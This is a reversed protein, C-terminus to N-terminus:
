RVCHLYGYNADCWTNGIWAAQSRTALTVSGIAVVAIAFVVGLLKGAKHTVKM